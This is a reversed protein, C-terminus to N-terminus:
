LAHMYNGYSVLPVPLRVSSYDRKSLANNVKRAKEAAPSWDAHVQKVSGGVKKGTADLDLAALRGYGMAYAQHCESSTFAYLVPSFRTTWANFHLPAGDDDAHVTTRGYVKTFVGFPITKYSMSPTAGPVAAPDAM